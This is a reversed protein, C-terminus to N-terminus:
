RINIFDRRLHDAVLQGPQVGLVFRYAEITVFHWGRGFDDVPARKQEQLLRLGSELKEIVQNLPNHVVLGARKLIHTYIMTTRMDKHGLVDQVTRFDYDVDFM